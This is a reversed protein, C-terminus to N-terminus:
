VNRRPPRGTAQCDGRPGQSTAIEGTEMLQKFHRLDEQIQRKPDKGLMRAVIAGFRGLPPIYDLVVRVETGRGQTDIFRVSGSHNVDAGALSRWAILRDPEENIIQADWVVSHGAPAKAKWRSRKDDIVKVAELHSMFRPLNEFNRWFRFLEGPSKNITFARVVHIGREHFDQPTAGDHGNTNFGLKEYLPCHGSVGRKLLLAGMGATTVGAMGGHRFGKLMLWSGSSVSM